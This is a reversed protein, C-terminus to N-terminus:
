GGFLRPPEGFSELLMVSTLKDVRGVFEARPHGSVIRLVRSNTTWGVGKLSQEQISM